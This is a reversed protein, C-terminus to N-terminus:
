KKASAMIGAQSSFRTPVLRCLPTQRNNAWAVLFGFSMVLFFAIHANSALYGSIGLARPPINLPEM